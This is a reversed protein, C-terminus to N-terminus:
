YRKLCREVWKLEKNRYEIEIQEETLNFNNSNSINTLEKIFLDYNKIKILNQKLKENELIFKTFNDQHNM